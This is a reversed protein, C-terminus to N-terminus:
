QDGRVSENDFHKVAWYLAIMRFGGTFVRLRQRDGRQGVSGVSRPAAVSVQAMKDASKM